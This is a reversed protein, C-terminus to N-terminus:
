LNEGHHFIKEVKSEFVDFGGYFIFHAIPYNVSDYSNSFETDFIESDIGFFKDVQEIQYSLGVPQIANVTSIKYRNIGRLDSFFPLTINFLPYASTWTFTKCTPLERFVPRNESNFEFVVQSYVTFNSNLIRQSAASKELDSIKWHDIQRLSRLSNTIDDGSSAVDLLLEMLPICGKHDFGSGELCSSDGYVAIFGSERGSLSSSKHFGFVAVEQSSMQKEGTLIEAGLDTLNAFLLLSNRPAHIISTGSAYNIHRRGFSITGEWIFSGLTFNWRQLFDNLGPLNSGGTEPRMWQKTNEDTFGLKEAVSANFWDAFIVINLGFDEIAEYLKERELPFFEDEPDVVVYVSYQHLDICTLPEGLVELYYGSSRLQQYLAKFNTHPHDATWDLPNSRDRLDDRPMYGPPYRINRYQDWLIREKRPPTPVIRARIPFYVTSHMKKGLADSTVTIKIRGSAIGDYKKGKAAVAIFIALYGSWPWLYDSHKISIRLLDGNEDIFPEWKPQEAIKGSLDLGNIITVNIVIPIGSYYIPQSCYPWMYPCENFDLYPPFLTIMPEYKRMFNFAALLDMRGSGQEFMSASNSLRISSEILAQKVVAPNWLQRDEIGSLIVAVGGAVVPSAVSTGSLIRCNGDLASSYVSGGYTVIDPKVRGYGGPLEWTTMGRSSFRAIKLDSNIGGVGIVDMQDAPNNLTGFGPGDNGIASILIINNASLEWVKDIFPVDTFDPGGISLNLINIERLIAHNFADLFWSTYSIQFFKKKTPKGLFERLFLLPTCTFPASFAFNVQNKTFVKYVYLNSEPALGACKQNISAVVGAVFTGHGLGKFGMDWLKNVHLLKTVRYAELNKGNIRFGLPKRIFNQMSFQINHFIRKVRDHKQLLAIIRSANSICVEIVDFDSLKNRRKELLITENFSLRDSIIKM